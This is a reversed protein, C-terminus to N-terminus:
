KWTSGGLIKQVIARINEFSFGSMTVTTMLGHNERELNAMRLVGDYLGDFDLSARLCLLVRFPRGDLSINWSTTAFNTVDRSEAANTSPSQVYLARYLNYFRFRDMEESTIHSHAVDIYGTRHNSWVFISEEMSAYYSAITYLDDPDRDAYTGSEMFSPIGGPVQYPGLLVPDLTSELIRASLEKQYKVLQKGVQALLASPELSLDGASQLLEGAYRRPVLFSVQNGQTAVNIGVVEGRANVAPGGSMGPNLSGTFHIRQYVRKELFGNYTGEVVSLGLDYPYGLSFLREGNAVGGSELPIAAPLSGEVHLVALDHVVDFGVPQAPIGDGESGFVVRIKHDGPRRVWDSIVHYNTMVWGRAQDVVFGSGTTTRAGTTAHLLRIQPVRPGLDAVIREADGSAKPEVALAGSALTLLVALFPLSRLTM